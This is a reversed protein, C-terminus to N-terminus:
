IDVFGRLFESKGDISMKSNGCNSLKKEKNIEMLLGKIHNLQESAGKKDLFTNNFCSIIDHIYDKKEELEDITKDLKDQTEKHAKKEKNYESNVDINTAIHDKVYSLVLIIVSLGASIIGMSLSNNKVLSSTFNLVYYMVWTQVLTFLASLIKGSYKLQLTKKIFSM